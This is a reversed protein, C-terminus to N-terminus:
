NIKNKLYLQIPTMDVNTEEETKFSFNQNLLSNFIDSESYPKLIESIDNKEM